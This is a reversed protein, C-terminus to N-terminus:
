SKNKNKSRRLRLQREVEKSLVKGCTSCQAGTPFNYYGMGVNIICNCKVCKIEKM